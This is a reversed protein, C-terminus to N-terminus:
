NESDTRINTGCAAHGTIYYNHKINKLNFTGNPTVNKIFM